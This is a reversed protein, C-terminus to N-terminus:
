IANLTATLTAAYRRPGCAVSRHDEAIEPFHDTFTVTTLNWNNNDGAKMNSKRLTLPHYHVMKQNNIKSSFLGFCYWLKLSELPFYAIIFESLITYLIWSSNQIASQIRWDDNHDMTQVFLRTFQIVLILIFNKPETKDQSAFLNAFELMQMGIDVDMCCLLSAFYYCHSKQLSGGERIKWGGGCCPLFALLYLPWFWWWCNLHSMIVHCYLCM